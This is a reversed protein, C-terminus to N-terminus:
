GLNRPSKLTPSAEILSIRTENLPDKKRFPFSQTRKTNKTIWATRASCNSKKRSIIDQLHEQGDGVYKLFEVISLQSTKIVNM